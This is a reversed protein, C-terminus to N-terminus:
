HRRKRPDFRARLVDGLLNILLVVLTIAIGPLAVVWWAERMSDRGESLMLGWSIDPAAVGLGLFSLASEALIMAGVELTALVLVTGAINPLVHRLVVRRTPVGAVRLSDIFPRERVALTEARVIRAYQAWSIVSLVMVLVPLSRGRASIVALALLIFPLALQADIIRSLVTDVRGRKFGAIMGVTTGFVAGISMASLGILFTLRAGHLLRSLIDRGLQDTGLPHAWSGGEQFVPPALRDALAQAGPDPLPLLPAMVALAAVIVLPAAIWMAASGRVRRRARAPLSSTDTPAIATM